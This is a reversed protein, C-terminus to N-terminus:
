VRRYRLAAYHPRAIGRQDTPLCDTDDGADLAISAPLLAHTPTTGGNDQLPGIQLQAATISFRDSANTQIDPGTSMRGFLNHGGSVFIGANDVETSYEDRPINAAVITNKIFLPRAYEGAYGSSYLGAGQPGANSVITCSHIILGKAYADNQIGGSGSMSSNGSITCNTLATFAWWNYIGGGESSLGTAHNNAITCNVVRSTGTMSCLGIGRTDNVVSTNDRIVCDRLTLESWNFIGAGDDDWESSLRGNRITVGAITVPGGMIRFIRFDRTGPEYSRQISLRHAGPGLLTLPKSINLEGGVLNVAGTVSLVITSNSPALGIVQRLTGYGRDEISHVQFTNPAAPDQVWVATAGDSFRSGDSVLAM